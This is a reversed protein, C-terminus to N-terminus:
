RPKHNEYSASIPATKSDQEMYKSALAVAIGLIVWFHPEFMGDITLSMLFFSLLSLMVTGMMIRHREDPIKKYAKSLYRVVVLAFVVSPIFGVIGTEAFLRLVTNHASKPEHPLLAAGRYTPFTEEFAGFGVGAFPHAGAVRFAVNYIKKRQNLSPDKGIAVTELRKSLTFLDIVRSGLDTFILVSVVGLFLVVVGVGLLRKSGRSSLTLYVGFVLIVIALTLLAARSVTSIISTILVIGAFFWAMKWLFRKSLLASGLALPLGMLLYSAYYNVDQFPGFFVRGAIGHIFSRSTYSEYIGYAGTAAAEVTFLALLFYIAKQNSEQMLYYCVGAATLAVAIFQVLALASVTLDISNMLSPVFCILMIGTYGFVPIGRSAFVGGSVFQLVFILIFLGAYIDYIGFGRLPDLGLGAHAFPLLLILFAIRALRIFSSILVLFALLGLALHTESTLALAGIGVIALGIPLLSEKRLLGDAIVLRV